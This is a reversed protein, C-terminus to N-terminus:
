SLVIRCAGSKGVEAVRANRFNKGGIERNFYRQLRRESLFGSTYLKRLLIRMKMGSCRGDTGNFGLAYAEDESFYEWFQSYSQSVVYVAGDKCRIWISLGM